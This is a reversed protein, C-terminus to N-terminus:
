ELTLRAVRIKTYGSLDITDKGYKLTTAPANGIVIGFPSQGNVVERAGAPLVRDFIVFGNADKIHVWTTEQCYFELSKTAAMAVNSITPKENIVANSASSQLSNGPPTIGDVPMVPNAPTASPPAVSNTADQNASVDANPASAQDSLTASIENAGVAQEPVDIVQTVSSQAKESSTKEEALPSTMDEVASKASDYQTQITPMWEVYAYWILLGLLVIASSWVYPMMSKKQDETMVINASSMSISKNAVEPLTSKLMSVLAESDLVLFKAYNRLFGRAIMADPLEHFANNEMSLIQKPGIRLATAVQEISLNKSERAQRLLEGVTLQAQVTESVFSEQVTEATNSM